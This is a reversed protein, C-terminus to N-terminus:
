LRIKLHQNSARSTKIKGWALSLSHQITKVQNELFKEKPLKQMMTKTGEVLNRVLPDVVQLDQNTLDVEKEKQDMEKLEKSEEKQVAVMEQSQIMSATHASVTYM